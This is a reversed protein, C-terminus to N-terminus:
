EFLPAIRLAERLPFGCFDETNRLFGVRQELPTLSVHFAGDSLTDNVHSPERQSDHNAGRLATVSEIMPM